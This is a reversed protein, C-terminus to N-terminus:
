ICTKMLCWARTMMVTKDNLFSSYDTITYRTPQGVISLRACMDMENWDTNEIQIEWM